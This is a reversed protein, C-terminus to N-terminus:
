LFRHDAGILTEMLLGMLQNQQVELADLIQVGRTDRQHDLNQHFGAFGALCIAM